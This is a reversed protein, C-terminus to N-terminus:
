QFKKRLNKDLAPFAYYKGRLQIMQLPLQRHKGVVSLIKEAINPHSSPSISGPRSGGEGGGTSPDFLSSIPLGARRIFVGDSVATVCFDIRTGLEAKLRLNKARIM